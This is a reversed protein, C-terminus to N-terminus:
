PRSRASPRRTITATSRAQGSLSEPATGPAELSPGRARGPDPEAHRPGVLGALRAGHRVALGDRVGRPRRGRHRHPLAAGGRHLRHLRLLVAPSVREAASARAGAGGSRFLTTYPFLTSRPPRRIMLFFFFLFIINHM